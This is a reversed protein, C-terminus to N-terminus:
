TLQGHDIWMDKVFKWSPRDGEWSIKAILMGSEKIYLASNSFFDWTHPIGMSLLLILTCKPTTMRFIGMSHTFFLKNFHSVQSFFMKENIKIIRQFSKVFISIKLLSMMAKLLYRTTGAQLFLDDCLTQVARASWAKWFNQYVTQCVSVYNLGGSREFNSRQM